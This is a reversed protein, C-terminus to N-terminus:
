LPPRGFRIIPRFADSHNPYSLNAINEGGMNEATLLLLSIRTALWDGSPEVDNYERTVVTVPTVGV